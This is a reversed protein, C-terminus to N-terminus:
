KNIERIEKCTQEANNTIIKCIINIDVSKNNATLLIETIFFLNIFDIFSTLKEESLRTESTENIVVRLNNYDIKNNHSNNYLDCLKNLKLFKKIKQLYVIKEKKTM